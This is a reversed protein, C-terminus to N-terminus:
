RKRESNEGHAHANCGGGDIRFRNDEPHSDIAYCVAHKEITNLTFMNGEDSYGNGKHSPRSGNGELAYCM